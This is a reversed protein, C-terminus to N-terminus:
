RSSSSLRDESMKRQESAPQKEYTTNMGTPKSFTSNLAGGRSFTSNLPTAVKEFTCNLLNSEDDCNNYTLNLDSTKNTLKLDPGIHSLELQDLGVESVDEEQQQVSGNRSEFALRHYSTKRTPTTGDDSYPTSGNRPPRRFTSSDFGSARSPTQTSYRASPSGNSAMYSHLPSSTHASAGFGRLPSSYTAPSGAIPPNLLLLLLLPAAELGQQGKCKTWNVIINIDQRGNQM